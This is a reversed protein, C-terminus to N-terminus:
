SLLRIFRCFKTKDDPDSKGNRFIIVSVMELNLRKHFCITTYIFDMTALEFNLRPAETWLYAFRKSLIGTRVATKADMFSIIHLIIADPLNSIRDKTHIFAISKWSM